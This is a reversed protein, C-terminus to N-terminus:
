RGASRAPWAPRFLHACSGSGSPMAQAMPRRAAAPTRSCRQPCGRWGSRTRCSSKARTKSRGPAPRRWHASPRPAPYATTECRPATSRARPTGARSPPSSRASCREPLGWRRTRCVTSAQWKLAAARWSFPPPPTVYISFMNMQMTDGSSTAAKHMPLRCSRKKRNQM